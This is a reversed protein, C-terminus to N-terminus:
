NGCQERLIAKFQNLSLEKVKCEMSLNNWCMAASYSISKKLFNTKPKNLSFNNMNSRLPYSENNLLTFLSTMSEPMLGNKVKYMFTAKKDERRERLTQWNLDNLLESSRVEYSSGTIIRAARNQMKQLKDLLYNSASDWVLCCYDLYPLILSKYVTILISKPAFAKMRRMMGLGKSVKSNINGINNKWLLQDDIIVGLTSCKRVRKINDTGLRIQPDNIVNNLRQRSGIIMYETKNKNLTLKNSLLWQHVKELNLNLNQELEVVSYGSTTLNTDDAFM